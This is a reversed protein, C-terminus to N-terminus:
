GVNVTTFHLYSFASACTHVATRMVGSLIPELHKGMTNRRFFPQGNIPILAPVFHTGIAPNPRHSAKNWKSVAATAVNSTLDEHQPQAIVAIVAGVQPPILVGEDMSQDGGGKDPVAHAHRHHIVNVPDLRIIVDRVQLPHAIAVILSMCVRKTEGYRWGALLGMARLAMGVVFRIVFPTAVANRTVASSPSSVMSRVTLFAERLHSSIVYRM